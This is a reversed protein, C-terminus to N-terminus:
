RNFTQKFISESYLSGFGNQYSGQEILRWSGIREAMRITTNLSM